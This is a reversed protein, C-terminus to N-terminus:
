KVAKALANIKFALEYKKTPMEENEPIEVDFVKILKNVLATVMADAPRDDSVKRMNKNVSAIFKKIIKLSEKDANEPDKNYDKIAVMLKDYSEKDITLTSKTSVVAETIVENPHNASYLISESILEIPNTKDIDTMELAERLLEVDSDACNDIIKDYVDISEKLINDEFKKNSDLNLRNSLKTLM